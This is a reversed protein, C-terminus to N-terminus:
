LDDKGAAQMKTAGNPCTKDVADHNFHCEADNECIHQANCFYGKACHSHQKCSQGVNDDHGGPSHKLQAQRQKDEEQQELMEEYRVDDREMAGMFAHGISQVPFYLFAWSEQFEKTTVSYLEDKSLKGDKTLPSSEWWEVLAKMALDVSAERLGPYYIRGRKHVARKDWEEPTGLNYNERRKIINLADPIYKQHGEFVFLKDTPKRPFDAMLMHHYLSTFQQKSFEKGFNQEAIYALRNRFKKPCDFGYTPGGKGPYPWAVYFDSLKKPGWGESCPTADNPNWAAPAEYHHPMGKFVSVKESFLMSVQLNRGKEDADSM